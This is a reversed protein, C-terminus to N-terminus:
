LSNVIYDTIVVLVKFLSKQHEIRGLIDEKITEIRDYSLEYSFLSVSKIIGSEIQMIVQMIGVEFKLKGSQPYVELNAIDPLLQRIFKSRWLQSLLQYSTFTEISKPSTELESRKSFVKDLKEKTARLTILQQNIHKLESEALQNWKWQNYTSFAPDTTTIVETSPNANEYAELQELLKWCQDIDQSAELCSEKIKESILLNEDSKTTIQQQLSEIEKQLQVVNIDRLESVEAQLTEYKSENFKSLNLITQDSPIAYRLFNDISELELHIQKLSNTWSELKELPLNIESPDCQGNSNFMEYDSVLQLITQNYEHLTSGRLRDQEQLIQETVHTVQYEFKEVESYYESHYHTM